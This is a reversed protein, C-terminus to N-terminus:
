NPGFSIDAYRVPQPRRETRKREANADFRYGFAEEFLSKWAAASQIEGQQSDSQSLALYYAWYLMPEHWRLPIQPEDDDALLPELPLRYLALSLTDAATPLRDFRLRPGSEPSQAPELVYACPPGRRREWDPDRADLEEISTPRLVRRAERLRARRISLVAPDLEIAETEPLVAVVAVGETTTDYILRARAVAEYYALNIFGLAGTAPNGIIAEDPWLPPDLTDDLRQRFAALLAARNM